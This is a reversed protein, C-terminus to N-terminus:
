RTVVSYIVTAAITAIGIVAAAIGVMSANVLTQVHKGIGDIKADMSDMRTQFSKQMEKMDNDHKQRIEAIEAARQNDKDRMETRFDRMETKFDRMEQIFNNVTTEIVSVRTDLGVFQKEQETM